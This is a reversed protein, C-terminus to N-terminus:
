NNAKLNVVVLHEESLERISHHPGERTNGSEKIGGYPMQDVRFAPAENVLVGGYDLRAAADLARNIDTTFVGAQLGYDSDNAQAIADDLDAVWSVICVPGFIERRCVDADRQPEIIVTPRIIGDGTVTGGAAITGGSTNIWRLIRERNSSSIVPGVDTSESAPDGVVLQGVRKLFYSLFEDAVESEVYVRQVSICSQGAFSFANSALREAADPLNADALVIAPTANGLELFVKKRPARERLHWGVASSGTFSLAKVRPDDVLADGITAAPGTLVSLMGDPLGAGAMVEALLLASFPTQSAPKLVVACGAGLAPALKHATLNLPFNFPSIAGVVGVPRRVTFGLYGVGAPSADMPVVEGALRLTEAAAHRFTSAARAVEARASKIPKAAEACLTQAFEESRATLAASTRDLVAAREHAPLPTAMVTQAADVAALVDAARAAAASGLPRGDYPSRVTVTEPTHVWKGALFLGRDTLGSTTM